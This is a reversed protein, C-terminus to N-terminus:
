VAKAEREFRARRVPHRAFQEPLVKVAVERDLRLDRARYVEGMGGAGLAAIIEYRGLSPPIRGVPPPQGAQQASGPSLTTAEAISDLGLWKDVAQLRAVEEPSLKTPDQNSVDDRKM